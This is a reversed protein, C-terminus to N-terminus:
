CSSKGKVGCLWYTRRTPKLELVPTDTRTDKASDICSTVSEISRICDVTSRTYAVVVVVVVVVVVLKYLYIYILGCKQATESFTKTIYLGMMNDLRQRDIALRLATTTGRVIKGAAPRVNPVETLSAAVASSAKRKEPYLAISKVM